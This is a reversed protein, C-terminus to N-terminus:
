PSKGPAQVPPRTARPLVVAFTTTGDLSRANLTGGHSAVIQKAIYLGLGLGQGRREQDGGAGRVFPEFLTEIKDAAIIPGRNVVEVAVSTSSATAILKM